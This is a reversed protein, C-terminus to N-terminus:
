PRPPRYLYPTTTTLAQFGLRALIPRSDDSADVQLYRYGHAAAIRARHAVLARYIGRGRWEPATGGGWLSAFDTGPQLELRAACVPQEGAMAVYAFVRDPEQALQDLLRRCIWSGDDGFAQEHARRVLEVGAADTVELLEVGQPLAADTPLEAIRGVMLTEPPEADFGAAQLREALDAPRDHAYLKWEFERGLATFYRVQAAIAEDAGAEDLDSWLVGNWAHEPGVQRVIDALREVRSEPGDAAVQRRMQRDFDALVTENTM